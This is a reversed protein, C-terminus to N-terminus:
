KLRTFPTLDSLLEPQKAHQEIAKQMAVTDKIKKSVVEDRVFRLNLRKGDDSLNYALYAYRREKDEIAQVTVLPLGAVTSHWARFFGGNHFIVYHEGDFPRVKIWSDPSVWDGILRHDVARAPKTTLPVEYDCGALLLSALAILPRTFKRCLRYPLNM